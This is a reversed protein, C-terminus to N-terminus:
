PHPFAMEHDEGAGWLGTAHLAAESPLDPRHFRGAEIAADQRCLDLAQRAVRAPRDPHEDCGVGREPMLCPAEHRDRAPPWLAPAIEAV